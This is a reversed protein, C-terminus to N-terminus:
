FFTVVKVGDGFALTDLGYATHKVHNRRNQRRIDAIARIGEQTVYGRPHDLHLLVATYRAQIGRLGANCLRDGFERDEAGYRLRSDFGGVLLVEKKWTSANGGNWTAAAPTLANLWRARFTSTTLKWNRRSRPLGHELLWRCDFCAGTELVEPTIARSTDMPLRVAGASVFRNPRRLAAHVELFDPRPLCDGDTFVLYDGSAQLVAHNLILCKRFGEDPHWVHKLSYFLNPAVAEIVERTRQDSGDDAVLVEFDRYHQANYALLVLRLWEPQNYTAIIVSIM